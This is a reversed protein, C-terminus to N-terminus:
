LFSLPRNFILASEKRNPGPSYPVSLRRLTSPGKEGGGGGVVEEGEEEERQSGVGRRGGSERPIVIM